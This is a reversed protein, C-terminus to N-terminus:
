AQRDFRDALGRLARATRPHRPRRFREAHTTRQRIVERAIDDSMIM